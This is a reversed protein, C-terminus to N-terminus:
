ETCRLGDFYAEMMVKAVARVAPVTVSNGFQHYAQTDSVPIIFQDPFGQLRACERPTLKRPNVGEGRSILIESGDKHYRASLTRTTDDPGVTSYGFGNGAAQHKKKYARLYDWLKDSLIYRNDPSDELIEKVTHGGSGMDLQNWDFPTKKKFGVIYIRERHQCTWNKSDLVKYHVDYGLEDELTQM